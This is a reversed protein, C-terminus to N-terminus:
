PSAPITVISSDVASVFMVKGTASYQSPLLEAPADCYVLLHGTEFSRPEPANVEVPQTSPYPSYPDITRNRTVAQMLSAVLNKEYREAPLHSMYYLHEYNFVSSVPVASLSNQWLTGNHTLSYANGNCVFYVQATTPIASGLTVEIKKLDPSAELTKIQISYDGQTPLVTSEHFSCASYPPIDPSFSAKPRNIYGLRVQGSFGEALAQVAGEGEAPISYQGGDTVFLSCYKQLALRQNGLPYAIMMERLGTSEGYGRKGIEAYFWSFAVVTGIILAYTIRFDGRKRSFLWIGPFLILLYLIALLFILAWNHDPRIMARMTEFIQSAAQSSPDNVSDYGLEQGNPDAVSQAVETVLGPIEGADKVFPHRTVIGQGVSFRDDPFNLEALSSPFELPKGDRGQILYLHGGRGLWDRFARTRVVDWRQPVHDLVVGGLVEAGSAGIPFDEDHFVEIGTLPSSMGQSALFQVTVQGPIKRNPCSFVSRGADGEGWIVKWEDAYSDVFPVFQVTRTEGPGVYLNLDVWPTNDGRGLGGDPILQVPGQFPESSPNILDISCLNFSNIKVANNFGWRVDRVELAFVSTSLGLLLSLVVLFRRTSWMAHKWDKAAALCMKRQSSSVVTDFDRM